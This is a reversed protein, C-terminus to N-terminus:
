EEVETILTDEEWIDGAFLAYGSLNRTLIEKLNIFEQM